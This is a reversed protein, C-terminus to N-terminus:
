IATQRTHYTCQALGASSPVSPVWVKDLGQRAKAVFTQDRRKRCILQFGHFDELFRTLPVSNDVVALDSVDLEDRAALCEVRARPECIGRGWLRLSVQQPRPDRRRFMFPPPAQRKVVAAIRLSSSDLHVIRWRRGIWEGGCAPRLLNVRYEKSETFRTGQHKTLLLLKINLREYYM